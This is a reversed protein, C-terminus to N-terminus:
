LPVDVREYITLGILRVDLENVAFGPLGAPLTIRDSVSAAAGGALSLDCRLNPGSGADTPAFTVRLLFYNNFMDLPVTVGSPVVALDFGGARRTLECGVDSASDDIAGRVIMRFRNTGTPPQSGVLGYIAYTTMTPAELPTVAVVAGTRVGRTSMMQLDWSANDPRPRWLLPNLDIDRFAMLCRRHDGALQPFPDCSGAIGDQDPDSLDNADFPCPDSGSPIDDFDLDVLEDIPGAICPDEVDAIGDSDLDPRLDADSLDADVQEQRVPDLGFLQNCGCAVLLWAACSRVNGM